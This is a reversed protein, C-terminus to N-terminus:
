QKLKTVYGKKRSWQRKLILYEDRLTTQSYTHPKYTAYIHNKTPNITKIKLKDITTSM